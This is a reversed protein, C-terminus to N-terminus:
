AGLPQMLSRLTEETIKPGSGAGTEDFLAEALAAKESQLQRIAEEVSGEAYLRHVFVPKTQGIRYARDMAQREVAPNWWPDYIVVTDAATLTLGTGGAKLSILLNSTKGAQFRDVLGQRDRTKGHLMEHGWGRKSLEASILELMQVFQSFVLVRRGESMWEDMLEMFRELKASEQTAETTPLKLLRPDCCTQRLRLLTEMAEIRGASLGKEALVAQLRESGAMRIQEYLGAQAKELPIVEDIITRPPLEQAVEEKTRRLLFPRVRDRLMAQVAENGELIPDRIEQSFTKQDGLLGPVLWDFIAWLESLNNEMPTGTLAIRTRAVAGRVSRSVLTNRNKIAQAEDLIVCDYAHEFLRKEDRVMTQYGIVVVHHKTLEEYLAKRKSGELVLVKLEPAFREAERRWTHLLSKPAVILSPRDTKKMLHRNVLLSLGQLTKGLGMDDALVGGFDSEALEVLWRYGTRQYPRLDAHIKVPGNKPTSPDMLVRLKEIVARDEDRLRWTVGQEALDALARGPRHLEAAHFTTKAGLALVSRVAPALDRGRLLARKGNGLRQTIHRADIFGELDFTQSLVTEAGDPLAEIVSLVHPLMEIGEGAIEASLELSRMGGAAKGLRAVPEIPDDVFRWPWSADIEVHWGEAGLGPMIEAVTRYAVDELFDALHKTSRIPNLLRGPLLAHGQIKARREPPLRRAEAVPSLASLSERLATQYHREEDLRREIAVEGLGSPQPVVLKASTGSGVDPAVTGAGGYAFRLDFIPTTIPEVKKGRSTAIVAAIEVARLTLIPRLAVAEDSLSVPAPKPLRGYGAKALRARVTPIASVPLPPTAALLRAVSPQLLRDEFRGVEGQEPDVFLLPDTALVRVIREQDDQGVIQQRGDEMWTWKLSGVRPKGQSLGRGGIEDLRTRGTELALEVALPTALGERADGREARLAELLVKDRDDLQGNSRWGSPRDLNIPVAAEVGESMSEGVLWPVIRGAGAELTRLVYRVVGSDLWATGPDFAEPDQREMTKDLQGLWDMVAPPIQVTVEGAPEPERTAPAPMEVPVAEQQRSVAICLAAAHVCDFVEKCNCWGDLKLGDNSRSATLKASSKFPKGKDDKGVLGVVDNGQFRAELVEGGEVLKLAARVTTKGFNKELLAITEPESPFAVEAPGATTQRVNM